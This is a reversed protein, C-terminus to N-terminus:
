NLNSLLENRFYNYSILFHARNKDIFQELIGRGTRIRVLLTTCTYNLLYIGHKILHMKYRRHM